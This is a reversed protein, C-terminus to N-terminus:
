PTLNCSYFPASTPSTVRSSCSLASLSYIVKKATMVSPELFLVEGRLAALFLKSDDIERGQGNQNATCNVKKSSTKEECYVDTVSISTVPGAVSTSFGTTSLLSFLTENSGAFSSSGIFLVAVFVLSRLSVNMSFITFLFATASLPNLSGRAQGM